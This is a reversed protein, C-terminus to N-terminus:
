RTNGQMTYSNNIIAFNYSFGARLLEGQYGISIVMTSWSYNEPNDTYSNENQINYGIGLAIHKLSFYGEMLEENLHYQQQFLFTPSLTLIGVPIMLGANVTYKIPLPNSGEVFSEDPQTLHDVSFGAFCNKGYGLIGASFDPVVINDRLLVPTNIYVPGEENPPYELEFKEANLNFDRYTVQAGASLTFSRIHFQHAYILSVNTATLLQDAGTSEVNVLFGIGNNSDIFNRDYSANYTVDFGSQQNLYNLGIRQSTGTGAFAPNLYFPNAYTQLFGPDQM